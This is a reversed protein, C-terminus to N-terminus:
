GKMLETLYPRFRYKFNTRARHIQTKIRTLPIGTIFSIEEYSLQEFDRLTILLRNEPSMGALVSNVIRQLEHTEVIQEVDASDDVLEFGPQDELVAELSEERNYTKDRIRSLCVNKAISFLWTSFKSDGRFKHLSRLVNVFVEQTLDYAEECNVMRNVINFVPTQYKKFLSEFASVDGDLYRRILDVDVDIEASPASVAKSLGSQLVESESM